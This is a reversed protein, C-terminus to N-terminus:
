LGVVSEWVKSGGFETMHVSGCSPPVATPVGAANRTRILLSLPSVRSNSTSGASTRSTWSKFLCIASFHPIGEGQWRNSNLECFRDSLPTNAEARPWAIGANVRTTSISSAYASRLLPSSFALRAAASARSCIARSPSSRAMSARTAQKSSSCSSTRSATTLASACTAPWPESRTSRARRVCSSSGRSATLLMATSVRARTAKFPSECAMGSRVACKTRADPASSTLVIYSTLSARTRM